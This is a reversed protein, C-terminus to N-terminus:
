CGAKGGTQSGERLGEVSRCYLLTSSVTDTHGSLVEQLLVKECEVVFWRNFGSYKEAFVFKMRPFKLNM